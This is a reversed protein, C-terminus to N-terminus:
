GRTSGSKKGGRWRPLGSEDRLDFASNTRHNMVRAAVLYIHGRRDKVKSGEISLIDGNRIDAGVQSLYWGPGLIVSLIEGTTELQLTSPAFTSIITVHTATGDVKVVANRDFSPDIPSGWWGGQGHAPSAFSTVISFIAALLAVGSPERDM